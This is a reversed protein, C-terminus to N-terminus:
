YSIQLKTHMNLIFHFFCFPVMEVRGCEIERDRREPLFIKELFREPLTEM